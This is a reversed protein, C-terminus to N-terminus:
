TSRQLILYAAETRNQAGLKSLISQVHKRVTKESIHLGQAIERDRYGQSIFQLIERERTTLESIADYGKEHLLIRNKLGEESAWSPMAADRLRHVLRTLLLPRMALEGQCVMQLMSTVDELDVDKKSRYGHAGSMIAAFAEQENEIDTLAIIRSNPVLKRLRRIEAVGNGQIDLWIIDPQLTVAKDEADAYNSASVIRKVGPQGTLIQTLAVRILTYDDVVLVTIPQTLVLNGDQLTGNKTEQDLVSYSM